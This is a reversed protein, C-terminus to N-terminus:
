SPHLHAASARRGTIRPLSQWLSHPSIGILPGLAAAYIVGRAYIVYIVGRLGSAPNRQIAALEQGADAGDPSRQM